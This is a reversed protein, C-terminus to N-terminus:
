DDGAAQGAADTGSWVQLHGNAPAVDSEWPPSVGLNLAVAIAAKLGDEHFGYGCYSGCFWTDRVGQITDLNGQAAVAATDFVPHTYNFRAFELAPDPDTLPNMTVFLPYKEDIGQLRNMWYTLAVARDMDRRGEALYNWSAWAMRRKPMLGPDRHLVAVNDQYSFCGLLAREADDADSLMALAEDGHAGIVIQDYYTESGDPEGVMVGSELRRIRRVPHGTRIKGGRQEIAAALREVYCRAGGDVTFWQPRNVHQLLGHNVFFRVFSRAPFALMTEVPCSWIAAAMPLLHDYLFGDGYGERKLFEGLTLDPANEEELLRPAAAFFRAVDALMRYYGPKLLNGPQALLGRLSGEYELAGNGVSVSFSMDSPKTPVDLAGFLSILNPYTAENYVIFGTDVPIQEGDYDVSVTNSHGGLRNNAEYVTVQHRSSLLWAASFGAIGSGIVAIRM